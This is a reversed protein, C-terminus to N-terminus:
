NGTIIYPLMQEARVNEVTAGAATSVGGVIPSLGLAEGLDNMAGIRIHNNPVLGMLRRPLTGDQVIMLDYLTMVRDPGPITKTELDICALRDNDPCSTIDVVRPPVSPPMHLFETFQFIVPARPNEVRKLGRLLDSL